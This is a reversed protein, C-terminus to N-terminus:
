PQRVEVVDAGLDRGVRPRNHHNIRIIRGSLDKCVVLQHEDGIETFFVVRQAKGVLDVFVNDVADVLIVWLRVM